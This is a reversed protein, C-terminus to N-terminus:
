EKLARTSGSSISRAGQPITGRHIQTVSMPKVAPRPYTKQSPISKTAQNQTRLWLGFCGGICFCIGYLLIWDM